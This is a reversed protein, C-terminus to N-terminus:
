KKIVGVIADLEKKFLKLLGIRYNHAAQVAQTHATRMSETAGTQYFTSADGDFEIQTSAVLSVEGTTTAKTMLNKWDVVSGEGKKTAVASKLDGTFSQVNLESLDAIGPGLKKFLNSVSM